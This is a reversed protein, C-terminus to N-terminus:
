KGVVGLAHMLVYEYDSGFLTAVAVLLQERARVPVAEEQEEVQQHADAAAHARHAHHARRHRARARHALRDHHGRHSDHARGRWGAHARRDRPERAGVVLGADGHEAM